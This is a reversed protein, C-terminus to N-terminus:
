YSLDKKEREEQGKLGAHGRRFERWVRVKGWFFNKIINRLGAQDRKGGEEIEGTLFAHKM